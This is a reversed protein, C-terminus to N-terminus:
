ASPSRPPTSRDEIGAAVQQDRVRGPDVRRDGVRGVRRPERRRAPRHHEPRDAAFGISATAHPSAVFANTSPVAAGAGGAPDLRSRSGPPDAPLPVSVFTFAASKTPRSASARLVQGRRRRRAPPTRARRGDGVGTGVGTGVGIGVGRGSASRRRGDRRGGRRRDRRRGVSTGVGSARRGSARERRGDGRGTGVGGVDVMASARSWGSPAVTVTTPCASSPGRRSRSPESRTRGPRSPRSRRGGRRRGADLRDRGPRDHGDRAREAAVEAQPDEVGVVGDRSTSSGARQRIREPRRGAAGVLGELADSERDLPTTVSAGDASDSPSPIM